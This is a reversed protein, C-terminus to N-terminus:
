APIGLGSLVAMCCFCCLSSLAPRSVTCLSFAGARGRPCPRAPEGGVAETRGKLLARPFGNTASVPGRSCPGPPHRGREVLTGKPLPALAQGGAGTRGKLLACPFFKSVGPGKLLSRTPTAGAGSAHGQALVSTSAGSGAVKAVCCLVLLTSTNRPSRAQHQLRGADEGEPLTNPSWCQSANTGAVRFPLGPTSDEVACISDNCHCKNIVMSFCLVSGTKGPAETCSMCSSSFPRRSQRCPM